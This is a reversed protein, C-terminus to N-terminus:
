PRHKSLKIQLYEDPRHRDCYGHPRLRPDQGTPQQSRPNSDQELCPHKDADKQTTRHLYLGQSPSIVRGLLRVMHRFLELFWRYTLRGLDKLSQLAKPFYFDPRHSGGTHKPSSHPLFPQIGDSVRYIRNYNHCKSSYCCGGLIKTTVDKRNFSISYLLSNRKHAIKILVVIIHFIHNTTPIGRIASVQNRLPNHTNKDAATTVKSTFPPNEHFKM